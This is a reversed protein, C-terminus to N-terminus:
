MIYFAAVLAALGVVSVKLQSAAGEAPATTTTAAAAGGSTTAAADTEEGGVSTTQTVEATTTSAAASETATSTSAAGDYDKIDKEGCEDRINTECNTQEEADNPHAAICRKYSEQCINYPITDKYEAIDSPTTGDGCVCNWTLDTNKCDNTEANKNCLTDCASRQGICWAATLKTDLGAAGGDLRTSNTQAVVSGVMFAAAIVSNFLM